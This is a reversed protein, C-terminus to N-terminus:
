AFIFKIVSFPYNNKIKLLYTGEIAPLLLKPYDFGISKLDPKIEKELRKGEGFQEMLKGTLKVMNGEFSIGDDEEPKRKQM